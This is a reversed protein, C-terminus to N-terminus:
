GASERNDSKALYNLWYKRLQAVVDQDGWPREASPTPLPQIHAEGNSLVTINQGLFCARM